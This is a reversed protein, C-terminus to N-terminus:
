AEARGGRRLAAAGTLLGLAGLALAAIALWTPAGDDDDEEDTDAAAPKTAAAPAAGGEAKPATLKVRAAPTEADEPGIWRVVEGNDYTQLAKFELTKNAGDPTRVSLGFDRFQGPDLAADGSDATFTVRTVQETVPEDGGDPLKVPSSLKERKVKVSWGEVPEYSVFYFGPPFQVDVKETAAKDRENPVRVNLRTFEGAAVEKPQLTVHAAASAPVALAVVLPAALRRITRTDL